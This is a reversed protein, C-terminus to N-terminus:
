GTKIHASIENSKSWINKQLFLIIHYIFIFAEKKLERGQVGFTIEIRFNNWIKINKVHTNAGMFLIWYQKM